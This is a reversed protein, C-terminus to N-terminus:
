LERVRSGAGQNRDRGFAKPTLAKGYTKKYENLFAKEYQEYAGPPIYNKKSLQKIMESAIEHDTLRGLNAVNKLTKEFDVIGTKHKGIRIQTVPPM